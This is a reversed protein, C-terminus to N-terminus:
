RRARFGSIGDIVEDRQEITMKDLLDLTLQVPYAFVMDLAREIMTEDVNQGEMRAGSAQGDEGMDPQTTTSEHRVVQQVPYQLRSLVRVVINIQDHHRPLHTALQQFTRPYPLNSTAPDRVLSAHADPRLHFVAPLSQDPVPSRELTRPPVTSDGNLLQSIPCPGSGNTLNTPPSSTLHSSRDASDM